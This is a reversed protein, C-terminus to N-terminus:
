LLDNQNKLKKRLVEDEKSEKIFRLSFEHIMFHMFVPSQEILWDLFEHLLTLITERKEM